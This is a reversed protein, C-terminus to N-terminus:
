IALSKDGLYAQNQYVRNIFCYIQSRTIARFCSLTYEKLCCSCKCKMRAKNKAEDYNEALVLDLYLITGNGLRECNPKHDEIVIYQYQIVRKNDLM